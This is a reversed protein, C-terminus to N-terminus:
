TDSRVSKQSPPVTSVFAAAFGFTIYTSFLACRYGWIPSGSANFRCARLNCSMWLLVEGSSHSQRAIPSDLGTLSRM